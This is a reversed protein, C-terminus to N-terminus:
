RASTMLSRATATSCSSPRPPGNGATLCSPWTRLPPSATSAASTSRKASAPKPRSWTKPGSRGSPAPTLVTAGPYPAPRLSKASKLAQPAAAVAEDENKRLRIFVVKDYIGTGSPPQPTFFVLLEPLKPLALKGRLVPDTIDNGHFFFTRETLEDILYGYGRDRYYSSIHGYYTENSKYRPSVAAPSKLQIRPLPVTPPPLPALPKFVPSDPAPSHALNINERYAADAAQAHEKRLALFLVLRAATKAKVSVKATTIAVLGAAETDGLRSVCRGLAVMLDYDREPPAEQFLFARCLLEAARAADPPEARVSLHALGLASERSERALGKEFATRATSRDDVLLALLGGLTFLEPKQVEDAFRVVERYFEHVRSLERIKRAYDYKWRWRNLEQQEEKGLEAIQFSPETLHIVVPGQFQDLVIQISEHVESAAPAAPYSNVPATLPPAPVTTPAPGPSPSVESFIKWNRLSEQIVFVLTGGSNVIVADDTIEHIM